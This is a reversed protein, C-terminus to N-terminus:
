EDDDDEDLIERMHALASELRTLEEEYAAKAVDRAKVWDADFDNKRGRRFGLMHEALLLARLRDRLEYLM